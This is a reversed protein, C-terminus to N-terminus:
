RSIYVCVCVCVYLFLSLPSVIEACMVVVVCVCVCVCLNNCVKNKLLLHFADVSGIECCAHIPFMGSLPDRTTTNLGQALLLKLMDLKNSSSSSSNKLASVLLSAADSSEFRDLKLKLPPTLLFTATEIKENKVALMLATYGEKNRNNVNMGDLEQGPCCKQLIPVHGASAALQLINNGDDDLQQVGGGGGGVAVLKIVQSVNGALAHQFVDMDEGDAAAAAALLSFGNGEAEAERQKQQQQQQLSSAKKAARVRKVRAKALFKRILGQILTAKAFLYLYLRRLRLRNVRRRAVRRRVICQMAQAGLFKRRNRMLEMLQGTKWTSHKARYWCQIMRAAYWRIKHRRKRVVRRALMRRFANQIRLVSANRIFVKRRERILKVRAKATVIRAMCQIKVAARRRRKLIAEYRRTRLVKRSVFRRFANQIRTASQTRTSMHHARHQAQTLVLKSSTELQPYRLALAACIKTRVQKELVLSAHLTSYFIKRLAFGRYTKQIASAAGNEVSSRVYRSVHLKGMFKKKEKKLMSSNRMHAREVNVIQGEELPNGPALKGPRRAVPAKIRRMEKNHVKIDRMDGNRIPLTTTVISM